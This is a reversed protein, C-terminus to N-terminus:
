LEVGIVEATLEDNLERADPLVKMASNWREDWARYPRVPRYQEADAELDNLWKGVMAYLDYQMREIQRDQSKRDRKLKLAIKTAESRNKGSGGSIDLGLGFTQNLWSIAEQFTCSQVVRVLAIVDGSAGCVFCHFGRKGSDLKCNSDHGNHVPCPCRGHRDVHLGLAEAAARASVSLRITETLMFGDRM